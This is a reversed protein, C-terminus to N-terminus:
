FIAERLFLQMKFTLLLGGFHELRLVTVHLNLKPLHTLLDYSQGFIHSTYQSLAFSELEKTETNISACHNYSRLCANM